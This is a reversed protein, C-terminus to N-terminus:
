IIPSAAVPPASILVPPSPTATDEKPIDPDVTVDLTSGGVLGTEEGICQNAEATLETARASLASLVADDHRARETNGAAVAAEISAVRDTASRAAVNMQNLKDDLCLVKVVDKNKRAERLMRAINDASAEMRDLSKKGEELIEQPSRPAAEAPTAEDGPPSSEASQAQVIGLSLVVFGFAAVSIKISSTIM